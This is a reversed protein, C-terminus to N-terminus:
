IAIAAKSKKASMLLFNCFPRLKQYNLSWLEPLLCRWFFPAMKRMQKELELQQPFEKQMQFNDFNMKGPEGKPGNQDALYRFKLPSLKSILIKDWEIWSFYMNLSLLFGPKVKEVSNLIFGFNEPYYWPM